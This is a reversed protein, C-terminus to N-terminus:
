RPSGNYIIDLVSRGDPAIQVETDTTADSGNEPWGPSGGLFSFTYGNASNDVLCDGGGSNTQFMCPQPRYVSLGGNEAVATNRALNLARVQSAPVAAQATVPASAFAGTGAIVALATLSSLNM